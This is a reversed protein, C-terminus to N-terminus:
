PLPVFPLTPLPVGISAIEWDDHDILTPSTDSTGRRLDFINYNNQGHNHMHFYIPTGAPADFDIVIDEPVGNLGNMYATGDSPIPIRLGWIFHEGIQVGM